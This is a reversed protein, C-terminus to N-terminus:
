RSPAPKKPTMGRIMPLHLEDLKIAGDGLYITVSLHQANAWGNHDISWPRSEEITKGEDTAAAFIPDAEHSFRISIETGDIESLEQLMTSLEKASGKFNLTSHANIFSGGSFLNTHDLLTKQMREVTPDAPGDPGTAPVAISPRDLKGAM